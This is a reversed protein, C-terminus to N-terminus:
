VKEFRSILDEKIVEMEEDSILQVLEVTGFKVSLVEYEGDDTPDLSHPSLSPKYIGRVVVPIAGISIDIEETFKM